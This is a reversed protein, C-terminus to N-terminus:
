PICIAWVLELVGDCTIRISVFLILCIIWYVHDHCLMVDSYCRFMSHEELENFSFRKAVFCDRV